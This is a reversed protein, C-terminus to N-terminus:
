EGFYSFWGIKIIKLKCILIPLIHRGQEGPSYAPPDPETEQAMHGWPIIVNM